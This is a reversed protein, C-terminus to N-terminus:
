STLEKLACVAILIFAKLVLLHLFHNLKPCPRLCFCFSHNAIQAFRNGNRESSSLLSTTDFHIICNCPGGMRDNGSHLLSFFLTLTPMSLLCLCLPIERGLSNVKFFILQLMPFMSSGCRSGQFFSRIIQTPFFSLM